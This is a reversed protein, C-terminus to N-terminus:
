RRQFEPSVLLLTAGQAASAARRISTRTHDTLSGGLARAGIEVPDVTAMSAHATVSAWEIRKLLADPGDWQDATDAWGAPSGPAFPRQGLLQLSALIRAPAPLPADIMRLGSILYEHPTKFKATTGDWAEPLDILAAHVSPLHGDSDAFAGAVREVAGAPPDDAVFHRVLKTAVHKATAAHKALDALIAKPQRVGDQSYHKGLVTQTGPEHAADRFVFEGPSGQALRGRGGGISWGTLARAFSTVDAQTYGADVGLTHLELIERALNENIDLKRGETRPRGAARRAFTSDPGISQQNDLYLIMAPHSEVALLLDSFRSALNPRIAENELTAALGLVQPKDVSVAFHNTWFHVLRERFSEETRVAYQYRAAVQNLYVPGLSKRLGDVVGKAAGSKERAARDQRLDSYLEFVERSSPLSSFEAPVPRRGEVQKRLWGRPDAGVAHLEDPRAGLGYRNAAVVPPLTV